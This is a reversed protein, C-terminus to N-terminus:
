GHRRRRLGAANGAALEQEAGARGARENGAGHGGAELKPLWVVENGAKFRLLAELKGIEADGARLAQRGHGDGVARVCSWVMRAAMPASPPMSRNMWFPSTTIILGFTAKSRGGASQAM